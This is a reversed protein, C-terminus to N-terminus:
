NHIQVTEGLNINFFAPIAFGYSITCGLIGAFMSVMNTTEFIIHTFFWMLLVPLSIIIASKMIKLFRIMNFNILLSIRTVILVFSVVMSVFISLAAGTIGYYKVAPYILVLLLIARVGTFLRHLEPHGIAFFLTAFPMSITKLLENCFIIAFPLSVMAYEYGYIMSLISKGYLSVFFLIPVGGLAILSVSKVISSNIRNMDSQIKSFAPMAIENFIAGILQLPACALAVAMSYLGLDYKSCLKGIVFIDARTFIFYLIPLGFMGRAYKFLAKLHCKEFTLGPCFHCIIYSLLFRSASEVIFGIALAWINKVIFALVVATVIGIIGGGYNIISWQKFQMNKVAIHAEFSMAGKFVIALFVMRILPVLEQNGYFDALWPASFFAITYLFIARGFSLWWAGNLYASESGRPNQIIAQKIGIETFTEFAAGITLVIAMLGFVEPALLRTLIMNRVLWFGHECGGLIGLWLSGRAAKIKLSNGLRLKSINNKLQKQITKFRQM